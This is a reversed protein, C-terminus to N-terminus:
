FHLDITQTQGSVDYDGLQLFPPVQNRKSSPFTFSVTHRWYTSLDLSISVCDGFERHAGIAYYHRM